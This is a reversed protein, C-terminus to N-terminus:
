NFMINKTIWTQKNQKNTTKKQKQKQKTRSSCLGHLCYFDGNHNSILGRLLASWTKVALSTVRRRKSDNFSLITKTKMIQTTNQFTPLTYPWKKFMYCMLILQQITKRNKWDYKGSPHNIGKRDYKNIFPKIKSIKAFKKGIEECELAITPILKTEREWYSFISAKKVLWLSVNFMFHSHQIDFFTSKVPSFNIYNQSEERLVYYNNM